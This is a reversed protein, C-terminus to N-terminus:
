GRTWLVGGEDKGGGICTSVYVGVQEIARHLDQASIRGDGDKDMSMFLSQTNTHNNTHHPTVCVCVSCLTPCCDVAILCLMLSKQWLVSLALM